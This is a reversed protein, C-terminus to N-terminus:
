EELGFAIYGDRTDMDIYDIGKTMVKSNICIVKTGNPLSDFEEETLLWIIRGDDLNWENM